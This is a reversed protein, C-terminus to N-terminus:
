GDVAQLNCGGPAYYKVGPNEIQALRESVTVRSFPLRLDPNLEALPLLVFARQEMQPHPIKLTTSDLQVGEYLLIDL